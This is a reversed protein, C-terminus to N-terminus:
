HVARDPVVDIGLAKLHRVIADKTRDAVLDDDMLRVLAFRYIDTDGPENLMIGLLRMAELRANSATMLCRDAESMRRCWAKHIRHNSVLSWINVGILVYDVTLWLNDPSM